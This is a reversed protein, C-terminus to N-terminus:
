GKEMYKLYGEVVFYEDSITGDTFYNLSNSTTETTKWFVVDIGRYQYIEAGAFM